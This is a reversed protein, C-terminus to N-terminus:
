RGAPAFTDLARADATEVALLTLEDEGAARIAIPWGRRIADIARAVSRADSL